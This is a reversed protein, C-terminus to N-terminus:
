RKPPLLKAPENTYFDILDQQAKGARSDHSSAYCDRRIRLIDERWPPWPEVAHLASM